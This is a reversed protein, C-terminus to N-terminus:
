ASWGRAFVCIWRSSTCSPVIVSAPRDSSAVGATAGPPAPTSHPTLPTECPLVGPPFGGTAVPPSSLEMVVRGKLKAGCLEIEFRGANKEVWEFTGGDWRSVVGRGGSVPGEYDLYLSRHDANAAAPVSRGAGPEALLRWAKLVPGAELLFDFHPAPWDHALIAFRPM